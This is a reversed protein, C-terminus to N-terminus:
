ARPSSAQASRSRIAIGRRRVRSDLEWRRPCGRKGRDAPASQARVQIPDRTTVTRIAKDHTTAVLAADRRRRTRLRVASVATQVAAWAASGVIGSGVWGAIDEPTVSEPSGIEESLARGAFLAAGKAVIQDPDMLRPKPLEPFEERLRAAIHFRSMGGVLLLEDYQDIGKAQAAELVQRTFSFTRAVLDDTRELVASRSLEIKAREGHAALTVTASEKKQLTKKVDEALVTLSDGTELDM